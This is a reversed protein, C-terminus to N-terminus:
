LNAYVCHGNCSSRGVAITRPRAVRCDVFDELFFGNERDDSPARQADRELHDESLFPGSSM